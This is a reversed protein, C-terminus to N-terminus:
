KDIMDIKCNNMYYENFFFHKYYFYLLYMILLIDKITDNLCKNCNQVNSNNRINHIVIDSKLDQFNNERIINILNKVEM